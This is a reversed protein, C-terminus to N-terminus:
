WLKQPLPTIHHHQKLSSLITGPLYASLPNDVSLWGLSIEARLWGLFLTFKLPSHINLQITPLDKARRIGQRSSKLKLVVNAHDAPQKAKLSPFILDVNLNKDEAIPSQTFSM